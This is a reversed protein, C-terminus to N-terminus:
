RKTNIQKAKVCL